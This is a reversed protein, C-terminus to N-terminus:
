KTLLIRFDLWLVQSLQGQYYVLVCRPVLISKHIIIIAVHALNPLYRLNKPIIKHMQRM